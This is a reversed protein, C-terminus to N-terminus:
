FKELHFYISVVKLAGKPGWSSEHHWPHGQEGLVQDPVMLTRWTHVDLVPHGQCVELWALSSLNPVCTLFWKDHYIVDLIVRQEFYRILFWWHGGLVVMSSMHTISVSRINSSLRFKDCFELWMLNIMSTLSSWTRWPELWFGNIDEGLIVMSSLPTQSVEWSLSCHSWAPASPGWDRGCSSSYWPVM